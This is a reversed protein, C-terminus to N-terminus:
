DEDDNYENEKFHINYERAFNVLSKLSNGTDNLKAMGWKDEALLVKLNRRNLKIMNGNLGLSAM